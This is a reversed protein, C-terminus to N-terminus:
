STDLTNGAGEVRRRLETEVYKWFSEDLWKSVGKSFRVNLGSAGKKVSFLLRGNEGTYRVPPTPAEEAGSYQLQGPGSEKDATKLVDILDDRAIVGAEIDNIRTLLRDKLGEKVAQSLVYGLRASISAVDTFASVVDSPLEAFGLYYSLQANTLGFEEALDGKSQYLGEELVRKFRKAKAYDSLPRRRENEAVMLRFAARDDMERIDVDLETGAARAAMWRVKGCIVEYHVQPDTPDEIRRVVAPQIQGEQQFSEAIEEAHSAEADPRDAYKWLRCVEPPVKARGKAPFYRVRTREQRQEMEATLDEEPAPTAATERAEALVRALAGTRVNRRRTDGSDKPM